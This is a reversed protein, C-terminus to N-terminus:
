RQAWVIVGGFGKEMKRLGRPGVIFVIWVRRWRMPAAVDPRLSTNSLRSKSSTWDGGVLEPVRALAVSLDLIREISM